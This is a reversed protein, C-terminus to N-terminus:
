EGSAAGGYLCRRIYDGMGGYLSHELLNGGAAYAAPEPLLLRNMRDATQEGERGLYDLFEEMRCRNLMGDKGLCYFSGFAPLMEAFGLFVMGFDVMVVDYGSRNKLAMLLQEYLAKSIESLHEPNVAPPIYDFNRFSRRIRHLGAAFDHGNQMMGYLLDGIDETCETKTLQYFGSHEMLNVYLVKRTEGLIQAMTMGFLVQNEHHVPSYIGVLEAANEQFQIKEEAEEQWLMASIRSLLKEASQYKAVQLCGTEPAEETGECFWIKKAKGTHGDVRDWFPATMVVANFEAREKCSLFAEAKSFTFVKFFVDRKRILYAKLQELYAGEEDLFAIKLQIM